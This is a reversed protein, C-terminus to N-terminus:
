RGTYHRCGDRRKTQRGFFKGYISRVSTFSGSMIGRRDNAEGYYGIYKKHLEARQLFDRTTLTNQLDKYDWELQKKDM